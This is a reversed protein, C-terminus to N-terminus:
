LLKKIGQSQSDMATTVSALTLLRFPSSQGKPDASGAAWSRLRHRHGAWQGRRDGKIKVTAGHLLYTSLSVLKSLTHLNRM